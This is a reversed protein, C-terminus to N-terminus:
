PQVTGAEGVLIDAGKSPLVASARYDPAFRTGYEFIFDEFSTVSFEELLRKLKPETSKLNIYAKFKRGFGM